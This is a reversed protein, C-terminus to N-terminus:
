TKMFGLNNKSFHRLNPMLQKLEIDTLGFWQGLTAAYQEVSYQPLMSGHSHTFFESEFTSEPIHGYIHNGDVSGGVVFYHGGWGHDTGNGNSSLTRGFDSATFLTVKNQLNIEQTAKFFAAIGDSYEKQLKPLTRFQDSHTDFSSMEVYFIQRNVGLTKQLTLSNAINKLQQSFYNDPFVTQIPSSEKQANSYKQSLQFARNNLAALDKRLMNKYAQGRNRYINELKKTAEQSAENLLFGNHLGNV